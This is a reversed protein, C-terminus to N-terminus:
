PKILTEFLTSLYSMFSLPAIEQLQLQKSLSQANAQNM